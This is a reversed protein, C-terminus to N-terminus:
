IINNNTALTNIKIALNKKQLAIVQQEGALLLGVASSDLM